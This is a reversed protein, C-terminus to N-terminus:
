SLNRTQDNSKKQIERWIERGSFRFECGNPWIEAPADTRRKRKSKRWEEKGNPYIMVPGNTRRRKGNKHWQENGEPWIIAPGNDKHILNNKYWFEIGDSDIKHEIMQNKRM